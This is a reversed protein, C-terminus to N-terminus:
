AQTLNKGTKSVVQILCKGVGPGFTYVWNFQWPCNRIKHGCNKYAQFRHIVFALSLRSGTCSLSELDM